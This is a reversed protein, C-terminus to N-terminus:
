NGSSKREKRREKREIHGQRLRDIHGHRLRVYLPYLFVAILGLSFANNYLSRWGHMAGTKTVLMSHVAGVFFGSVWGFEGVVPAIGCSYIASIVMGRSGSRAFAGELFAGGAIISDMGGMFFSTVFIGAMTPWFVRITVGCAAFGAATLICAYVPGNFQGTVTLFVYGCSVLGIFGINILTSEFDFERVFDGGFCRFWVLEKFKEWGGLAFGAVIFYMCIILMIFFLLSNEGTVFNEDVYPYIEHGLSFVRQLSNMGVGVIGAAFGANYLVRGKHLSPLYDAFVVVLVGSLIGLAAGISVAAFGGHPLWSTAFATVSFVPALATSFLALASVEKLERRKYRAYMFVGLVPFWINILNKGYFSFGTTVMAAAIQIGEIDTKTAKYVMLVSLLLVGANVFSTGYNGAWMFGDFDTLSPHTLVIVYGAMLESISPALVFGMAILMLGLGVFVMYRINMAKRALFEQDMVSDYSQIASSELDKELINNEANDPLKEYLDQKEMDAISM